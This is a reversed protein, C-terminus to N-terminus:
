AAEASSREDEDLSRMPFIVLQQEELEELSEVGMYLLWAALSKKGGCIRAAPELIV